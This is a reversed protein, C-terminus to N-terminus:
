KKLNDKKTQYEKEDLEGNAYKKDLIDMSSEDKNKTNNLFYFIAAILLIPVFWGLGMGFGHIGYDNM